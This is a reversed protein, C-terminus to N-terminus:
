THTARAMFCARCMWASGETVEGRLDERGVTVSDFAYCRVARRECFDCDHLEPVENAARKAAAWSEHLHRFYEGWM